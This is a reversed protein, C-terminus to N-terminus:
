TVSAIALGLLASFRLCGRVLAVIKAVIRALDPFKGDGWLLKKIGRFCSAPFTPVKGRAKSVKRTNQLDHSRVYREETTGSKALAAVLALNEFATLSERTTQSCAVVTLLLASFCM